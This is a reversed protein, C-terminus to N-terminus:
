TACAPRSWRSCGPRTPRASCRTPTRTTSRSTTSTSSSAAHPSAGRAHGRDGLPQAPRPLGDEAPRAERRRAHRVAHGGAQQRGQLGERAEAAPLERAARRRDRRRRRARLGRPSSGGARAGHRRDGEGRARIRVGRCARAGAEARRRDLLRPGDGGGSVDQLAPRGHEGPVGARARRRPDGAQGQDDPVHRDARRSGLRVQRGRLPDGRRPPARRLGHRHGADPDREPNLFREFILGYRLPDLDTIRLATRSSRAGRGIRTRARRPHRARPRVPDPGLRHPLLRRIGDPLDRRARPRHARAIEASIEGYRTRAGEYVLERLYSELPKGQPPEFRPLHFREEAPARDGYRLDLECMEAIALTADCAEPLEAFVARM